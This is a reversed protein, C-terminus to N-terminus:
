AAVDVLCAFRTTRFEVSRCLGADGARVALVKLCNSRKTVESYARCEDPGSPALLMQAAAVSGAFALIAAMGAARVLKGSRLVFAIAALLVIPVAAWSVVVLGVGCLAGPRSALFCPLVALAELISPIFVALAYGIRPNAQSGAFLLCLAVFIVALNTALGGIHFYVGFFGTPDALELVDVVNQYDYDILTAAVASALVALPILWIKRTPM